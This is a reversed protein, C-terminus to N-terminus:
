SRKDIEDDILITKLRELIYPPISSFMIRKIKQKRIFDIAKYQAITFLYTKLSATRKYNRLADFLEIIRRTRNGTSDRSQATKIFSTISSKRM